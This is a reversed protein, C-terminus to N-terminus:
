EVEEIEIAFDPCRLVCMNCLICDEPRNVQPAGVRDLDFVNKPCFAVCIGCEKCRGRHITIQAQKKKVDTL